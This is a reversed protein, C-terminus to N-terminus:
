NSLVWKLGNIQAREYKIMDKYHRISQRYAKRTNKDEDETYVRDILFKFDAIDKKYREITRKHEAIEANIRRELEIIEPSKYENNVLKKGMEYIDNKTKDENNMYIIELDKYVGYNYANDNCGTGELFEAYLM